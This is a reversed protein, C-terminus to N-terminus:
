LVICFGMTEGDNSSGVALDRTAGSRTIVFCDDRAVNDDRAFRPIESKATASEIPQEDVGGVDAGVGAPPAGTLKV